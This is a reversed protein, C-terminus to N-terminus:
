FPNSASFLTYDRAAAEGGDEAEDTVHVIAWVRQGFKAGGAEALRFYAEYLGCEAPARLEPM